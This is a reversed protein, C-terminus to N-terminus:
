KKPPNVLARVSSLSIGCADAIEKQSYGANLMAIARSKTAPPITKKERPTAYEKVVDLDTNDLIKSLKNHTIAGAQIAEWERPTIEIMRPNKDSSNAPSYRAAGTRARAAELAQAKLKKVEDKDMDPNDRKKSAVISNAILQAQRERPANQLSKDLKTNLSKVEDLYRLRAERSYPQPKTILYEKRSENALAKLKNAHKAYIDEITTGSSLERADKAEAMKTTTQTRVKEVERITGDKLSYRKTWTEGTERYRKEGTLPDIDREPVFEKRQPVDARGKAKSILTSAGANKGGQYKEKLQSIRNEKYSRKWDLNHKEADIVVMSHKVARAIEPPEAGKITMDTILNSIKGMESQKHFGDTKAGVRPMGEYARYQEKPDFDKLAELPASSKLNQNKTPIVIVTDGDFDAGSLQEAVKSNIGVANQTQGLLAKGQVNNNNVKLRPIEFIGGHPYRVLIVEEGTKYNPAYIENDKINTLPLIVHTRQRPLPAAKLHVASADCDDSFSRLLRKKVAPNELACIDKYEQLKEKYALDLQRKATQPYQKSLFQSALNRSWHGWDSDDNVINIPSQHKKGDKDTYDWQRVTSGFPNDADTEMPKLVTNDKPGLMPTGKHKNTNFMIDCGKPLDKSYMAMGKLYHTGDVAIRVQAYSNEGLSIDEVGPRIEIVGDKATGGDESYRVKIRNPDISVPPKIARLTMGNDEFYVGKPAMVKDRNEWVESYPVDAKTLVKVSTYKGPNTAQEVRLYQKKYGQEELMAVAAKLKTDSVGLQREAGAGIDLYRKQDVQEKLVNAVNHVKDERVKYVPNLYNRVSGESLGTARAIASNSYGKDHMKLVYSRNREVEEAKAQSIKARLQSTNMGLEAAIRAESYGKEKLEKVKVRFPHMGIHQNPNEGSGWPYRGSNGGDLHGVGIHALFNDRLSM